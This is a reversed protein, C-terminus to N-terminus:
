NLEYNMICLEYNHNMIILHMVIISIKCLKCLYYFFSDPMVGFEEKVIM